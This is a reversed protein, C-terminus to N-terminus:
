VIGPPIPIGITGAIIRIIAFVAFMIFMGFVGWIMHRTGKARAAESESQWFYEVIGWLFFIFALGFLLGILPNIISQVLRDVLQSVGEVAAINSPDKM